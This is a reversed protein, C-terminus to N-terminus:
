KFFGILWDIAEDDNIDLWKDESSAFGRRYIDDDLIALLSEYIGKTNIM